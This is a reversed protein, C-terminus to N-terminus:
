IRTFPQPFTAAAFSSVLRSLTEGFDSLASELGVIDDCQIWISSRM